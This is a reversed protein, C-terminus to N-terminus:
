FEQVRRCLEEQQRESSSTIASFSATKPIRTYVAVHLLTSLGQNTSWMNSRVVPGLLVPVRQM